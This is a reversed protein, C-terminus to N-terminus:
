TNRVHHSLSSTPTKGSTALKEAQHKGWSSFMTLLIIAASFLGVSVCGLPLFLNGVNGGLNEDISDTLSHEAFCLNSFFQVMYCSATISVLSCTLLLKTWLPMANWQTVSEYSKRMQEDKDDAEKVEKDDKIEMMGVLLLSLRSGAM